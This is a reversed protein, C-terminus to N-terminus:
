FVSAQLQFVYSLGVILVYVSSTEPVCMASKFDFYVHLNTILACMALKCDSYM